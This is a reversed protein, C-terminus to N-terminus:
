TLATWNTALLHVEEDKPKPPLDRQRTMSIIGALASPRRKSIEVSREAAKADSASRVATPSPPPEPANVPPGVVDDSASPATDVSEGPTSTATESLAPTAMEPVPDELVEPAEHQAPPQAELESEDVALEISEFADPDTPLPTPVALPVPAHLPAPESDYDRIVASPTAPPEELAATAPRQQREPTAVPSPPEPDEM